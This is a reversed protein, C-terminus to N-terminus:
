VITRLIAHLQKNWSKYSWESAKTTVKKIDDYHQDTDFPYAAVAEALVKPDTYRYTTREKLMPHELGFLVNGAMMNEQCNISTVDHISVHAYFASKNCIEALESQSANEVFMDAEAKIQDQIKIDNKSPTTGGWVSVGGVYCTEVETDKLFRFIEVVADSRKAVSLQSGCVLQRKINNTPSPSFVDEPVPDALLRSNYVGQVGFLRRQYENGHTIFDAGDIVRKVEKGNWTLMSLEGGCIGKINELELFQKIKGAKSQTEDAPYFWLWDAFVIDDPEIEEVNSIRGVFHFDSAELIRAYKVGTGGGRNNLGPPRSLDYDM